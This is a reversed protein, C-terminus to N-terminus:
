KKKIMTINTIKKTGEDKIEKLEVRLYKREYKKKIM